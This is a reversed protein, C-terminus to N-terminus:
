FATEYSVHRIGKAFKLAVKQVKEVAKAEYSPIPPSAQIAYKLHLRTFMEDLRFPRRLITESSFCRIPMIPLVKSM